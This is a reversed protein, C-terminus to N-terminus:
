PLYKAKTRWLLRAVDAGVAYQTNFYRRGAHQIRSRLTRKTSRKSVHTTTSTPYFTLPSIIRLGLPALAWTAVCECRGLPTIAHPEPSM